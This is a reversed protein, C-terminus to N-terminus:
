EYVKGALLLRAFDRWTPAGPLSDSDTAWAHMAELFWAITGSEWGRTGRAYPVSEDLRADVELAKLFALFSEPSDISEILDEPRVNM